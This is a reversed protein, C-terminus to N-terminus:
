GQRMSAGRRGSVVRYKAASALFGAEGAQAHWGPLGMLPLPRLGQPDDLLTGDAIGRAIAALVTPLEGAPQPHLAALAKGVLLRAPDLAHELLAHGIVAIAFDGEALGTFLGPWDHRDWAALRAPDRLLLVVGAEDFHTLACQGRTRERAGIRAVDAVQRRNMARKIAPHRRWVLANLLDHWNAERTALQGREAIRAEYHLGDELLAPTQAVARLGLAPPYDFLRNLLDLGPWDPAALLGRWHRYEAFVPHAFVAPSVAARPPAVFRM